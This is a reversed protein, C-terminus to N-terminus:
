PRKRLSDRWDGQYSYDSSTFLVEGFDWYESNVIEPETKYFNCMGDADMAWFKANPCMSWDPQWESEHKQVGENIASVFKNIRSEKENLVDPREMDVRKDAEAQMADALLYAADSLHEVDNFDINGECWQKLYIKAYEHAMTLKDM